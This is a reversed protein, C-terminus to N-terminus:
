AGAARRYDAMVTPQKAETVPKDVSIKLRLRDEVTAGLKSVRLRVEAALAWSQRDWMEHHMLATDLLFDWDTDTWTQALASRRWTEWWARTQPHWNVYVPLEPGRLEGDTNLTVTGATKRKLDRERSATASPAPGRGPM